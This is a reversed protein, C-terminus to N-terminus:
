LLARLQQLMAQLPLLHPHHVIRRCPRAQGPVQEPASEPALGPELGPTLGQALVLALVPALLLQPHQLSTLIQASPLLERVWEQQM